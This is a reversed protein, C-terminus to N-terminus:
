EEPPNIVVDTITFSEDKYVVKATIDNSYCAAGKGIFYYEPKIEMRIEGNYDYRIIEGYDIEEFVFETFFWPAEFEFDEEGLIFHIKNNIKDHQFTILENILKIYEDSSFILDRYIEDDDPELIHLEEISVGTGSGVYLVCIIEEVGDDDVDAMWMRPMIGRPTLFNWEFPKILNGQKLIVGDNAGYLYVDRDPISAILLYNMNASRIKDLDVETETLDNINADYISIFPIADPNDNESLEINTNHNEETKDDINSNTSSESNTKNSKTNDEKNTENKDNVSGDVREDVNTTSSPNSKNKSIAIFYNILGVVLMITIISITIILVNKKKM